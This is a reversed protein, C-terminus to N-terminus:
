SEGYHYIRPVRESVQCVLEYAITNAQQALQEVPLLKDGWLIVEDGIKADNCPSLDIAIMDMSVRGLVAVKVGNILVDASNSLQRSYGDAYGVSVIGICTEDQATWSGGYGVQGGAPIQQIAILSSVFQMAPQLGLEDASRHEFPSIGYLMLGPRVWQQHSDQLSIIAASNAMSVLLNHASNFDTLKALQQTNRDDDLEDSNAFHSMLNIDGKINSSTALSKLAQEADETTFGLRHMGTDLMLWCFSLAQTLTTELVIEVQQGSHFVPSLSYDVAQNLEEASNVGELIVIPLSIGEKRLQIGESVRAVAFADSDSLAHAAKVAGHGYANAKIVSMIQSNPALLKVRALNHQLANLDIKAVPDSSLKM